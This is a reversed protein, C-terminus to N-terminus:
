FQGAFYMGDFAGPEALEKTIYRVVREASATASVSHTRIHRITVGTGATQIDLSGSPQLKKWICTCEAVYHRIDEGYPFRGPRLIGHCHLNSELHEPCCILACRIDAPMKNYRSGLCYRDLRKVFEDLDRKMGSLTLGAKARDPQFGKTKNWAFTVFLHDPKVIKLLWEQTALMLKGRQNYSLHADTVANVCPPRNPM